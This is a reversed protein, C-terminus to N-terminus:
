VGKIIRSQDVVALTEAYANDNEILREGFVTNGEIIAAGSLKVEGVDTVRDVFPLQNFTKAIMFDPGLTPNVTEVTWFHMREENFVDSPAAKFWKSGGIRSNSLQWKFNLPYYGFLGNPTAHSTDIEGNSMREVKQPDLDDREANPLAFPDTTFLLPDRGREFLQEPLIEALVMVIGGTPARPLALDLSAYCQGNVVADTLNAGDTAWRKEVGVYQTQDAMKIPQKWVHEPVSIGQMLLDVVHQDSIGEYQAKIQAYWQTKKALEINALSLKVGMSQMNAYVDLVRGSAATADAKTRVSLGINPRGEGVTVATATPDAIQDTKSRYTSAGAAPWTSGDLAGYMGLGDILAKPNTFTLDVSGEMALDDWDPVVYKYQQHQWFAPQLATSSLTNVKQTEWLKESRNRLRFNHILNYAEIYATNIVDTPAAHFGLYKHIEISGVAGAVMTNFFPTVTAGDAIVKKMYSRNFEDMGGNFREFALFPVFWVTTRVQIGNRIVEASEMIDFECHIMSNRLTDERLLPFAAIPVVKGAKVTTAVNQNIQRVSRAVRNPTTNTRSMDRLENASLQRTM